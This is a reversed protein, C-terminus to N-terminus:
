EKKLKMLTNLLIELDEAGYFELEFHGKRKGNVIKVGRGLHKSLSKECEGIYDVALTVKPEKKPATDMNKCLLEAQRVSLGLAIIKQTAELQKKSDKLSLVARAHGPTLAGIRLKELIEPPLNLLRLANAVASRSKGVRQATEDQTLGYDQMLSQYGLSEEVPNLDQRQLNEILALEMAKKDDAEIIVAPIESLGAMRAARWRREGAIIQYYGGSLERVTLPQIIGHLAISESLAALEEEDFDQRPQSRNPEVKHLPLLQYPGKEQIEEQIDGFLAGLGKGLGKNSAM